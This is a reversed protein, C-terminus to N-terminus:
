EHAFRNLKEDPIALLNGTAVSVGPSGISGDFADADWTRYGHRGLLHCVTDVTEHQVECHIAPRVSRLMREANELVLIEAGEVDIKLVDPQDFSSLLSDLTVCPVTRVQRFRGPQTSGYGHIANSSRARRAIDFHVFGPQSSVAVPLMTIEAHQTMRHQISRNLIGVADSDAEIALVKGEATAHFAAARSFLGVNAGVDWVAAGTHVLRACSELLRRAWQAAPKLVYRLGGIRGRFYIVAGGSTAPLRRRLTVSGLLFEAGETAFCTPLPEM